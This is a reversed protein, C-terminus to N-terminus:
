QDDVEQLRSCCKGFALTWLRAAFARREKLSLDSLDPDTIVEKLPRSLHLVHFHLRLDEDPTEFDLARIRPGADYDDSDFFDETIKDFARHRILKAFDEGSLDYKEEWGDMSDDLISDM